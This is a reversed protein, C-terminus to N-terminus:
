QRASHPGLCKYQIEVYGSLTAWPAVDQKGLADNISIVATGSPELTLDSLTFSKGNSLYLIPTVELDAVAISNRLYISAKTNADIRWFGGKSSQLAMPRKWKLSVPLPRGVPKHPALVKPQQQAPLFLASALMALVVVFCRNM